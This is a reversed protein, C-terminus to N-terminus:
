RRRPGLAYIAKEWVLWTAPGFEPAKGALLRRRLTERRMRGREVQALAKQIGGVNAHQRLWTKMAALGAAFDRLSIGAKEIEALESLTFWDGSFAKCSVGADEWFREASGRGSEFMVRAISAGHRLISLLVPVPFIVGKPGADSGTVRLMAAGRYIAPEVKFRYLLEFEFIATCAQAYDQDGLHRRWSAYDDWAKPTGIGAPLDLPLTQPGLTAGPRLPTTQMSRLTPHVGPKVALAMLAEGRKVLAALDFKEGAKKELRARTEPSSFRRLVITTPKGEVRASRVLELQYRNLRLYAM